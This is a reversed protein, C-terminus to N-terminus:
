RCAELLLNISAVKVLPVTLARQDMAKTKAPTYCSGPLEHRQPGQFTRTLRNLTFHREAACASDLNERRRPSLNRDSLRLNRAPQRGNYSVIPQAGSETLDLIALQNHGMGVWRGHACEHIVQWIEDPGRHSQIALLQELSEAVRELSRDGVVSIGCM